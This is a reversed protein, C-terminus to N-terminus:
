ARLVLARLFLAHLVLVCLFDYHEVDYSPLELVHHEMDHLFLELVHVACQAVGHLLPVLTHLVGGHEM